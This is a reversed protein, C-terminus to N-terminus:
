GWCNSAGFKTDKSPLGPFPKDTILTAGTNIFGSPKKGTKAFDVVYDVGRTAMIKPFQMVTAAIRGEAVYKVGLCGGDISTLVIDNQKGAKKIAAYAGEAAPENITYVVNIDPHATLLNEMATQGQDLAGHTDQRGVITPDGEAIGFGKLFGDHRQKDVSGGPTGDLMALKPTKDGLAKRAYQGQLVGAEFNDTALTADVADAPDTATDLAIVLIGADRAKKVAGLVGTSNSPTILIGKVGASIFDEIAAVQGENDGDFKGFRALLKAGNKEAEATASQRLKVFYPNVETKTVLGILIQNSPGAANATNTLNATTALALLAVASLALCRTARASHRSSATAKSKTQLGSSTEDAEAIRSIAPHNMIQRRDPHKKTPVVDAFGDSL